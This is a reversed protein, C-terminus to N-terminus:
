ESYSETHFLALRRLYDESDENKMGKTELCNDYVGTSLCM